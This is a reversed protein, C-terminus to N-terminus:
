INKPRYIFLNETNVTKKPRDTELPRHICIELIKPKEKLKRLDILNTLGIYLFNRTRKFM